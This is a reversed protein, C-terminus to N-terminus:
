ENNVKELVQPTVHQTTPVTLPVSARSKQPAGGQGLPELEGSWPHAADVPLGNVDCGAMIKGRDKADAHVDHCPKCLSQLNDPDFALTEDGRHPEIHDVTDAATTRNMQTCYRCLPEVRLQEDRLKQWKVCGYIKSHQGM